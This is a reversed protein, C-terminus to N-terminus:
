SMAHCRKDNVQPRILISKSQFVFMLLAPLFSISKEVKEAEFSFLEEFQKNRCMQRIQVIRESEDLITAKGITENM